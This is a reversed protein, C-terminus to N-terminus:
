PGSLFILGITSLDHFILEDKPYISHGPLKQQTTKRGKSSAGHVTVIIRVKSHCTFIHGGENFLSQSVDFLSGIWVHLFLM